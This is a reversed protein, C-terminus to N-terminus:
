IYSGQLSEIRSYSEGDGEVGRAISSDKPWTFTFEAGEHLQSKLVVSGGYHEVQKKVIALGMGSGEISRPAIRQYMHFVRDHYRPDIGMGNDAITVRIRSGLDECSVDITGQDGKDNYKIANTILNLVVQKLPAIATEIRPLPTVMRVEVGERNETMEIISRVMESLEVAETQQELRGVRSYELLEDLLIQMKQVRAQMQALHRKSEEPLLEDCDEHVWEALSNIGRLPAKLDHSAVYAFNDLELNTEELAKAKRALETSLSQSRVLLDHTEQNKASFVQAARSMRGIEDSRDTGPIDDLTEGEALRRLADTLSSIPRIISYSLGTALFGAFGLAALSAIISLTRTRDVAATRESRNRQQEKKVFRKVENSYYVFESIEGAMVVNSYFLYGRTAQVARLSLQQFEALRQSLDDCSQRLRDSEANDLSMVRNEARRLAALMRDLKDASPDILYQLLHMRGEAFAQVVEVLMTHSDDTQLQDIVENLSRIAQQVEDAKRPLQDIVLSRRIAREQSALELQEGFTKLHETMEALLGACPGSGQLPQTEAIQLFLQELLREAARRASESGSHVYNESKAKLEQVSRDISLVQSSTLEAQEYDAIKSLVATEGFWSIGSAVCCVSVLVGTSVYIRSQLSMSKPPTNM